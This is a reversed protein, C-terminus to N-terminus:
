FAIKEKDANMYKKNNAKENQAKDANYALSYLIINVTKFKDNDRFVKLQETYKKEVTILKWFQKIEKSDQIKTMLQKIIALSYRKTTKDTFLMDAFYQFNIISM